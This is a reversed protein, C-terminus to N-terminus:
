RVRFVTASAAAQFMVADLEVEVVLGPTALTAGVATMVPQIEGMVEKHGRAFEAARAMDVLYARVRVVDTAAAGVAELATIARRLAYKTQAEVDDPAHIRGSPEVATTGAVFAFGGVRKARVYGAM